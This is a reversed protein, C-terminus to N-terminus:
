SEGGGGRNDNLSGSCGSGRDGWNSYEGGGRCHGDRVGWGSYSSHSIRRNGSCMDSWARAITGSCIDHYIVLDSLGVESAWVGDRVWSDSCRRWELGRVGGVHVGKICEIWGHLILKYWPWFCAEWDDLPVRVLGDPGMEVRGGKAEPFLLSSRADDHEGQSIIACDVGGFNGEEALHQSVGKNGGVKEDDGRADHAGMVGLM